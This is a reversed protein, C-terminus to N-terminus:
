YPFTLCHAFNLDHGIGGTINGIRILFFVVNGYNRKGDSQAVFGVGAPHIEVVLLKEIQHRLVVFDGFGRLDRGKLKLESDSKLKRKLKEKNTLEDSIKGKISVIKVKVNPNESLSEIARSYLSTKRRASYLDGFTLVGSHCKVQICEELVDDVYVDLDEKGEPVFVEQLNGSRMMRYLTYLFQVRYGHLTSQINM